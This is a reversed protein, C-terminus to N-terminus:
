KRNVTAAWNGRLTESDRRKGRWEAYGPGDFPVLRLRGFFEAVLAACVSQQPRWLAPDRGDLTAWDDLSEYWILAISAGDHATSIQKVVADIAAQRWELLGGIKKEVDSPVARNGAEWRRWAQESTGSIMAAAEPQSFFLLRRAAELQCPIM